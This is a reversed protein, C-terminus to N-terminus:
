SLSGPIRLPIAERDPTGTPPTPPYVFTFPDYAFPAAHFTRWPFARMFLRRKIGLAETEEEQYDEVTHEGNLMYAFSAQYVVPGWQKGDRGTYRGLIEYRPQIDLETIVGQWALRKLENYRKAEAENNFIYGDEKHVM